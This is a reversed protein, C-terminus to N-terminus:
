RAADVGGASDDAVSTLMLPQDARDDPLTDTEDALRAFLVINVLGSSPGDHGPERDDHQGKGIERIIQLQLMERIPYGVVQGGVEQPNGPAKYDGAVRSKSELALRDVHLLDTTLEADAIDDFTTDPPGTIQKPYIYLQAIGFASRVQPCIPEVGIGGAQYPRLALDGAPQRAGNIELEHLGLAQTDLPLFCEIGVRVIQQDVSPGRENPGNGRGSQLLRQPNERAHQLDFRIRDGRFDSKAIGQAAIYGIAPAGRNLL